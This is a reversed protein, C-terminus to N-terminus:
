YSTITITTITITITITITVLVTITVTISLLLLLLYYCYHIFIIIIVNAIGIIFNLINITTIYIKTITLLEKIKYLVYWILNLKDTLLLM